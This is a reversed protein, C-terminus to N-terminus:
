YHQTKQLVKLLIGSRAFVLRIIAPSKLVIKSQCKSLDELCDFGEFANTVKFLRIEKVLITSMQRRCCGVSLSYEKMELICLKYECIYNKKRSELSRDFTSFVFYWLIIM